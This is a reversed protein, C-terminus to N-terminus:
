WSHTTSACPSRRSCCRKTDGAQGFEVTQKAAEPRPQRDSDFTGLAQEDLMELGFAM